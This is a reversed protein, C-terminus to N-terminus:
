MSVTDLPLLSPICTRAVRELAEDLRSAAAAVDEPFCHQLWYDLLPAMGYRLVTFLSQLHVSRLKSSLTTTKSLAKDAKAVLRAEIFTADGM